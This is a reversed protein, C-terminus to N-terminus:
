SQNLSRFNTKWLYKAVSILLYRLILVLCFLAEHKELVVSYRDRSVTDQWLTDSNLTQAASLIARSDNFPKYHLEMHHLFEPNFVNASLM